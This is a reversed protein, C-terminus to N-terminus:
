LLSNNSNQWILTDAQKTSHSSYFLIFIEIKVNIEDLKFMINM